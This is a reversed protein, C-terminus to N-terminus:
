LFKGASKIYKGKQTLSLKGEALLEELIKRFEERDQKSVQLFMALEKEKMAVEAKLPALLWYYVFVLGGILLVASTCAIIMRKSRDMSM